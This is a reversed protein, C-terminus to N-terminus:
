PPRSIKKVSFTCYRIQFNAPPLVCLAIDFRDYCVFVRYMIVQVESVVPCESAQIQGLSESAVGGDIVDDQNNNASDDDAIMDDDNDDNEDDNDDNDENHVDLNFEIQDANEDM